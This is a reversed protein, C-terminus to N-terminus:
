IQRGFGSALSDCVDVTGDGGLAFLSWTTGAGRVARVEVVVASTVQQCVSVPLATPVRLDSGRVVARTVEAAFDQLRATVLAMLLRPRGIRRM